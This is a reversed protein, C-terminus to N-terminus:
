QEPDKRYWCSRSSCCVDGILLIDDWLNLLSWGAAAVAVLRKVSKAKEYGSSVDQSCCAVWTCTVQCGM